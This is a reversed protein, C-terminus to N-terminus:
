LGTKDLLSKPNYKKGCDECLHKLQVSINPRLAKWKDPLGFEPKEVVAGCDDCKWQFFRRLM